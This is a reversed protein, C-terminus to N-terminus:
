EEAEFEGAWDDPKDSQEVEILDWFPLNYEFLEYTAGSNSETHISFFTKGTILLEFPEMTTSM